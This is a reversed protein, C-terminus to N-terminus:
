KGDKRGKTKVMIHEFNREGEESQSHYKQVLLCAGCNSLFRAAEKLSTPASGSLGTYYVILDGPNAAGVAETLASM